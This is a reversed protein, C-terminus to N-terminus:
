PSSTFSKSSARSMISSPHRPSTCSSILDGTHIPGPVDSESTLDGLQESYQAAKRPDHSAEAACAAGHLGRYRNPNEQLAAEFERLAPAPEGVELLLEGLLERLPYIRNEMAVHRISGDELDAAARM